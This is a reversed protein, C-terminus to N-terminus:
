TANSSNKQMWQAFLQYKSADVEHTLDEVVLERKAVEASAKLKDVISSKGAKVRKDIAALSKNAQSLSFKALTLREKNM